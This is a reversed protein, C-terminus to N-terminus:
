TEVPPGPSEFEWASTSLVSESVPTHIVDVRGHHAYALHGLDRLSQPLHVHLIHANNECM